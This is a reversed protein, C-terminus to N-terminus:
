SMFRSELNTWVSVIISVIKSILPPYAMGAVSRGVRV